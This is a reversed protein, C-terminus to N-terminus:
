RRRRFTVRRKPYAGGESSSRSRADVMDNNGAVIGATQAAVANQEAAAEGDEMEADEESESTNEYSNLSDLTGNGFGRVSSLQSEDGSIYSADSSSASEQTDNLPASVAATASSAATTSKQRVATEALEQLQNIKVLLPDGEEISERLLQVCELVQQAINLERQELSPLAVPRSLPRRPTVGSQGSLKVVADPDLSASAAAHPSLFSAPAASSATPRPPTSQVMEPSASSSSGGGGGGGEVVVEDRQGSPRDLMLAVANNFLRDRIRILLDGDKTSKGDEEASLLQSQLDGIKELIPYTQDFENVIVSEEPPPSASTRRNYAYVVFTTYIALRDSTYEDFNFNDKFFVRLAQLLGQPNNIIADTVNLQGIGLRDEEVRQKFVPNTVYRIFTDPRKYILEAVNRFGQRDDGTILSDPTLLIDGALTDIVNSRLADQHYKTFIATLFVQIYQLKTLVNGQPTVATSLIDPIKPSDDPLSCERRCAALVTNGENTLTYRGGRFTDQLQLLFRYMRNINAIYQGKFEDYNTIAIPNKLDDLLVRLFFVSLENLFRIVSQSEPNDQNFLERITDVFQNFQLVYALAKPIPYDRGGRIAYTDRRELETILQQVGENEKMIRRWEIFSTLAMQISNILTLQQRADRPGAQAAPKVYGTGIPYTERVIDLLRKIDEQTPPRHPELSALQGLVVSQKQSLCISASGGEVLARLHSILDITVHLHFIQESPVVYQLDDETTLNWEAGQPVGAPQGTGTDCLFYRGKNFPSACAVGGGDGDTKLGLINYLVTKSPTGVPYEIRMIVDTRGMDRSLTLIRQGSTRTEVNLFYQTNATIQVPLNKLTGKEIKHWQSAIALMVSISVSRGTFEAQITKDSGVCTITKSAKVNTYNGNKMPVITSVTQKALFPGASFNRTQPDVSVLMRSRSITNDLYTAPSTSGPDGASGHDCAVLVVKKEAALQTWIKKHLDGTISDIHLAIVPKDRSMEVIRKAIAVEDTLQLVRDYGEQPRILVGEETVQNQFIRQIAVKAKTDSKGVELITDALRTLGATDCIFPIDEPTITGDHALADMLQTIFVTDIAIQDPPRYDHIRSLLSIFATTLRARKVREQESSNDTIESRPRKTGSSTAAVATSASSSGSGGEGSSATPPATVSSASGEGNVPMFGSMTALKKQEIVANVISLQRTTFINSDRLRILNDISMEELEERTFVGGM